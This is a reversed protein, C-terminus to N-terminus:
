KNPKDLSELKVGATRQRTQLLTKTQQESQEMVASYASIDTQRPLGTVPSANGVIRIIKDESDFESTRVKIM